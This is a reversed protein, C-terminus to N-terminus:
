FSFKPPFPLGSCPKMRFLVHPKFHIFQNPFAFSYFACLHLLPIYVLLSLNPHAKPHMRSLKSNRKFDILLCVDLPYEQALFHDHSNHKLFVTRISANYQSSPYLPKVALLWYSPWHLQELLFSCLHSWSLSIFPSKWSVESHAYTALPSSTALSPDGLILM